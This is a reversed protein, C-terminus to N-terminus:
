DARAKPGGRGEPGRAPGDPAPRTEGGELWDEDLHEEGAWLCGCTISQHGCRPCREMDCGHRHVNGPLVGCDGCRMTPRRRWGREKGYRVPEYAISAIVIPQPTCGEETTMELSCDNCAVM